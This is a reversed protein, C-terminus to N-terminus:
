CRRAGLELRRGGTAPARLRELLTEAGEAAAEARFADAEAACARTTGAAARRGAGRRRARPAARAPACCSARPPCGWGPAACCCTASAHPGARAARRLVAEALLDPPGPSSRSRWSAGSPPSRAARRARRPRLPRRAARLGDEPVGEVRPLDDPTSPWARAPDRAHPVPADRGEREVIRDVTMKAMRRWTTLKGGTITIMGSSTEYLEAKRSIDVSKKPDGTSILPRVGAYAGAADAAPRQPYAARSQQLEGVLPANACAIMAPERVQEGLRGEDRLRSRRLGDAVHQQAPRPQPERARSRQQRSPSSATSRTAATTPASCPQSSARTAASAAANRASAAAPPSTRHPQARAVALQSSPPAGSSMPTTLAVGSENESAPRAARGRRATARARSSSAAPASTM